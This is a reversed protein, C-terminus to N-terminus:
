PGPFSRALAYLDIALLGGHGPFSPPLRPFLAAGVRAGRERPPGGIMPLNLEHRPGHLVDDAHGGPARAVRGQLCPVSPHDQWARHVPPVRGRVGGRRPGAHPARDRDREILGGGKSGGASLHQLGPRLHGSARSLVPLRCSSRPPPHAPVPPIAHFSIRDSPTYGANFLM